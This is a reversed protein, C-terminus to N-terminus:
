ELPTLPYLSKHSMVTLSVRRLSDRTYIIVDCSQVVSNNYRQQRRTSATSAFHDQSRKIDGHVVLSWCINRAASLYM